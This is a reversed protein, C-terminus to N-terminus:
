YRGGARFRALRLLRRPAALDLGPAFPNAGAARLRGIYLDALAAPLLAPLARRPAEPALARAAELHADARELVEGVVRALRSVLGPPARGALVEGPAVGARELLETPLYLRGQRAHFPLARVLGTLAWAIGVHRGAALAPPSAAELAELALWVLSASTGEAYAELDALTAPPEPALDRGRAELLREFHAASLHHRELGRALALAVPHRRPTGALAEALAERWWALRVEGLLPESVLEPIRALELSFAYLALLDARAAAPAFLAALYRDHDFRRVERRCHESAGEDAM